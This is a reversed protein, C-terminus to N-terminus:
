DGKGHQQRWILLNLCSTFITKDVPNALPHVRYNDPKLQVCYRKRKNGGYAERYLREYGYTQPGVTPPITATAKWDLVCETGRWHGVLDLTGAWGLRRSGLPLESAIITIGSEALFRAAGRLYPQLEEGLSDIDLQERVLLACAEHVRQGRIRATELLEAPIGLFGELKEIVRTVAPLERGELLYRHDA